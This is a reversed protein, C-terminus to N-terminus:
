PVFVNHAKVTIAKSIEYLSTNNRIYVTGAITVTGNCILTFSTGNCIASISKATALSVYGTDIAANNATYNLGFILGNCISRLQTETYSGVFRISYNGISGAAVGWSDPHDDTQMEISYFTTINSTSVANFNITAESENLNVTDYDECFIAFGANAGTWALSENSKGRFASLNFASTPVTDRPTKTALNFPPTWGFELAINTGAAGSNANITGSANLAM